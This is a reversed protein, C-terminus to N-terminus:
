PRVTGRCASEAQSSQMGQARLSQVCQALAVYYRQQRAAEEAIRQQEARENLGTGRDFVATVPEVRMGNTPPVWGESDASCSVYYGNKGEYVLKTEGAAMADNNRYSTPYAIPVNNCVFPRYTSKTSSSQTTPPPTSPLTTAEPQTEQEIAAPTDETHTNSSRTGNSEQVNELYIAGAVAFLLLAGITVITIKTAVSVDEKRSNAPMYM